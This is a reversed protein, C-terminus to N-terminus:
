PIPAKGTSSHRMSNRCRIRHTFGVYERESGSLPWDALVTVGDEVAPNGSLIQLREMGTRSTRVDVSLLQTLTADWRHTKDIGKVPQAVETIEKYYDADFVNRNCAVPMLLTCVALCSINLIKRSCMMMKM